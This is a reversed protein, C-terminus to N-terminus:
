EAPLKVSQQDSQVWGIVRRDFGKGITIRVDHPPEVTPHQCFPIFIRGDSLKRKEPM